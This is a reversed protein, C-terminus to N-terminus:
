DEIIDQGVEQPNTLSFIIGKNIQSKIAKNIIKNNYGLILPGIGMITDILKNGNIDSVYCGKGKNLFIPSFGFSFQFPNKAFTQVLGPIYKEGKKFIKFSKNNFFNKTM